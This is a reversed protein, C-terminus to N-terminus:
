REEFQRILVRKDDPSLESTASIWSRASAEDRYLWFGALNVCARWRAAPESMQQIFDLAAEPRNQSLYSSIGRLATDREPGPPWGEALSNMRDPYKKAQLYSLEHIAATREPGTLADVWKEARELDNDFTRLMWWANEKRTAPDLESYIQLAEELPAGSLANSLMSDREPSAPQSRIWELTKGRDANLATSILYNGGAAFDTFYDISRTELIKVGNAAAWNLADVPHEAAWGGLVAGLAQTRQAEPLQDVAALAAFPDQKAAARLVSSQLHMASTGPPLPAALEVMRALAEAPERETLKGLIDIHVTLRPRPDALLALQAEAAAFDKAALSKIAAGCLGDRLRSAPLKALAILQEAADGNALAELAWSATNQAWRAAPATAAEALTSEPLAKAWAEAVTLEPWLIRRSKRFRELFPQVAAAAGAQDLVAWRALLAALVAHRRRGYEMAVARQFIEALETSSLNEFIQRLRYARELPEDEAAASMIAEIMEEAAILQSSHREGEARTHQSPGQLGGKTDASFNTERKSISLWSGGALGVGFCLLWVLWCVFRAASPKSKM